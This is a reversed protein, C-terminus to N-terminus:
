ASAGGETLGLARLYAARLARHKPYKRANEYVYVQSLACPVAQALEAPLLGKAERATKPNPLKKNMDFSIGSDM